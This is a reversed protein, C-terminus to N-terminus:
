KLVQSACCKTNSLIYAMCLYTVCLLMCNSRERGWRGCCVCQDDAGASFTKGATPPQCPPPCNSPCGALSDPKNVRNILHTGMPKYYDRIDAIHIVLNPLLLDTPVSDNPGVARIRDMYSDIHIGAKRLSTLFFTSQAIPQFGSGVTEVVLYYVVLDFYILVASLHLDMSLESEIM